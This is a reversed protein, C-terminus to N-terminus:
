TQPAGNEFLFEEVWKQAEELSPFSQYRGDEPDTRSVIRASFVNKDESMEVISAYPWEWSKIVDSTGLDWRRSVGIEQNMDIDSKNEIWSYKVIREM